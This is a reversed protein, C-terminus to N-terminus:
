APPQGLDKWANLTKDEYAAYADARTSTTRNKAGKTEVSRISDGRKALIDTVMMFAGDIEADSADKLADGRYAEVISRKLAPNGLKEYGDLKLQVAMADLKLRTNHWVLRAEDSDANGENGDENGEDDGDGEGDKSAQLTELQGKLTDRDKTMAALAEKLEDEEHEADKREKAIAVAANADINYGVGGAQLSATPASAAPAAPAPANAPKNSDDSMTVGSTISDDREWPARISDDDFQKRMKDYYRGVHNRAREQEEGSIAVGGRAGSLVGAVAFIGRPLAVLKGSVVDAIPLKYSGFQDAPGDVVVFARAFKDNPAEAADAWERVRRVAATSDWEAARDGLALDAFPNVADIRMWTPLMVAAGSPMSDVRFSARDFGGRPAVTLAFHNNLRAVQIADYRGFLSHVGPTEDLKVLYAPSTGRFSKESDIRAVADPRDILMGVKVFGGLPEYAVDIVTGVGFEAKNDLTVPVNPHEITVPKFKMSGLTDLNNLTEPLVLERRISGDHQMYRLVGPAAATAECLLYGEGMHVSPKLEFEFTDHRLVEIM